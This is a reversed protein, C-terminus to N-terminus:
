KLLIKLIQLGEKIQIETVGAFGIRLHTGKLNLYDMSSEYQFLVDQKKALDSIKKSDQNLNVWVSMGGNPNQWNINKEKQIEILEKLMFLYRQEYVRRIRRLHREFGGSRIWAALGIQVLSDTQRSILHKQM